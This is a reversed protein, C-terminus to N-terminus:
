KVGCPPPQPEDPSLRPDNDRDRIAQSADWTAILADFLQQCEIDLDQTEKKLTARLPDSDTLDACKDAAENRREQLRRLNESHKRFQADLDQLNTM